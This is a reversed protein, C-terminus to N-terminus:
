KKNAIFKEYKKYSPKTLFRNFKRIWKPLWSAEYWHISRTNHTIKLRRSVYGLPCFYEKPYIYMGDCLALKNIRVVSEFRLYRAFIQNNNTTDLKGNEKKFHLNQYVDLIKKFFPFGKYAGIALCFGIRSHAFSSKNHKKQSKIFGKITGSELGSFAGKDLLDDFSRIVEVDTDFYIGGHQYLIDIRAYDSVFAYKKAEYAEKMYPVKNVDYNSEDWRKIEYGPMNKKWSEICKVATSPLPNHGFWCYHIIKPIKNENSM